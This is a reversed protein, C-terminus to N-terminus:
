GAGLRARCNIRSHKSNSSVITAVNQCRGFSAEARQSCTLLVIHHKNLITSTQSRGTHIQMAKNTTLTRRQQLGEREMASHGVSRQRHPTHILTGVFAPLSSKNESTHRKANVWIVSHACQQRDLKCSGFCFANEDSSVFLM